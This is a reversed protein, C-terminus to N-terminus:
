HKHGRHHHHRRKHHVRRRHAREHREQKNDGQTMKLQPATTQASAGCLVSLCLLVAVFLWSFKRM